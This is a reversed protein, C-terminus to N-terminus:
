DDQPRTRNKDYYWHQKLGLYSVGMSILVPLFVFRDCDNLLKQHEQPPMINLIGLYAGMIPLALSMQFRLTQNVNSLADRFLDREWKSPSDPGFDDEHGNPVAKEKGTTTGQTEAM